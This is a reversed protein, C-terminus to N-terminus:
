YIIVWKPKSVSLAQLAQDSLLENDSIILVLQQSHKWNILTTLTKDTLDTASLNFFRFNPHNQQDLSQIIAQAGVDGIAKNTVSLAQLHKYPRILEAILIGASWDIQSDPHSELLHIEKLEPKNAIMTQIQKLGRIGAAIFQNSYVISPPQELTPRPPGPELAIARALAIKQAHSPETHIAVTLKPHKKAIQQLYYSGMPGIARNNRLNIQIPYDPAHQKIIQQFYAVGRNSILNDSLDIKLAQTRTALATLIAIAACDDGLRQHSLDITNSQQQRSTFRTQTLKEIRGNPHIVTYTYESSGLKQPKKEIAYLSLSAELWEPLKAQSICYQNLNLSAKRWIKYQPSAAINSVQIPQNLQNLWDNIDQFWPASQYQWQTSWTDPQSFNPTTTSPSCATLCICILITSGILKHRDM